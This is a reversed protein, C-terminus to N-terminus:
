DFEKKKLTFTISWMNFNKGLNLVVYSWKKKRIKLWISHTIIKTTHHNKNLIHLQKKNKNEKKLKM